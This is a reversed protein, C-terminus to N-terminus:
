HRPGRRLAKTMVDFVDTQNIVGTLNKSGPGIAFIPVQTGAHTQFGAGGTPGGIAPGSGYSLVMNAGEDTVLTSYATAHNPDTVPPIILDGHAHDSAVIVLTDRNAKAYEQARKVVQDFGITEGIQGCPDGAHSAKDANANEVMLFFGRNRRGRRDSSDLLELAKNMMALLTPESAPRSGTLCRQPAHSPYIMAPLGTWDRTMHISAFVGLLKTGPTAAALDTANDVLDYGKAQASQYVTLGMDPGGDITQGFREGGGGLMVDVQHDVMQEVISGAGGASKRYDPCRAM